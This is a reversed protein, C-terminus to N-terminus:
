ESIFFWKEDVHVSQMCNDYQRTVPDINTLCFTVRLLKHRETLAPKLASTCTMIVPDDSDCKMRFLTSKPISLAHALDRITRGRFLPILKVTKRVEDHNWKTHRGCKKKQPCSRFQRILPNEYNQCVRAWVRTVAVLKLTGCLFKGDVGREQLEFMLRSVIQQREICILVRKTNKKLVPTLPPEPDPPDM